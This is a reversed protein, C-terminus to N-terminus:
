LGGAEHGYGYWRLRAEDVTVDWTRAMDAYQAGARGAWYAVDDAACEVAAAIEGLAQLRRLFGETVGAAASGGFGPPPVLREIRDTLDAVLQDVRQVLDRRSGATVTRPQPVRAM